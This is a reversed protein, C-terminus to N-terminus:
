TLLKDTRAHPLLDPHTRKLKKLNQRPGGIPGVYRQGGRGPDITLSGTDFLLPNGPSRNELNSNVQVVSGRHGVGGRGRGPM